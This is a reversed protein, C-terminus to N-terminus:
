PIRRMRLRIASLPSLPVFFRYVSKNSHAVPAAADDDWGKTHLEERRGGNAFADSKGGM